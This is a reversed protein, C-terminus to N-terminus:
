GRHYWISNGLCCCNYLPKRAEETRQELHTRMGKGSLDGHMCAQLGLATWNAAESTLDESHPGWAPSDGSGQGTCEQPLVCGLVQNCGKEQKSTGIGKWVLARLTLSLCRRM